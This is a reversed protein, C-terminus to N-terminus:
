TEANLTLLKMEGGPVSRDTLRRTERHDLLEVLLLRSFAEASSAAGKELTTEEPDNWCVCGPTNGLTGPPVSELQHVSKKERTNILKTQSM